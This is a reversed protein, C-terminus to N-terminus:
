SAEGEKQAKKEKQQKEWAEALTVIELMKARNGKRIARDWSDSTMQRLPPVMLDSSIIWPGDRAQPWPTMADRWAADDSDKIGSIVVRGVVYIVKGRFLLMSLPGDHSLAECLWLQDAEIEISQINGLLEDTHEEYALKWFFITGTQIVQEDKVVFLGGVGGQYEVVASEAVPPTALGQSAPRRPKTM